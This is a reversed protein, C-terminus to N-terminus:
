HVAIPITRTAGGFRLHIYYVGATLGTCDLSVDGTNSELQMFRVANGIRNGLIDYAAVHVDSANFGIDWSVRASVLGRAPQPYPQSIQLATHTTPETEVTSTGGVPKYRLLHTKNVNFGLDKGILKGISLYGSTASYPTIGHLVRTSDWPIIDSIHTSDWLTAAGNLASTYAFSYQRTLTVLMNGLGFMTNTNYNNINTFPVNLTDFDRRELSYILLRNEGATFVLHKDYLTSPQFQIVEAGYKKDYRQYYENPLPIAIPISDWTKGDDTSRYLSYVPYSLDKVSDRVFWDKYTMGMLYVTNGDSIMGNIRTLPLTVTELFRYDKDLRIVVSYPHAAVAGSSTMYTPTGYLMFVNKTQVIDSPYASYALKMKSRNVSDEAFANFLPISGTTTYTEGFDTTVFINADKEKGAAVIVCGKGTSDYHAFRVSSNVLEKQFRFRQPLITAGANTTKYFTGYASPMYITSADPSRSYSASFRDSLPFYSQLKWSAGNDSTRLICHNKGAGIMTTSDLRIFQRIHERDNFSMTHREPLSDKPNMIIQNGARNVMIYEYRLYTQIISLPVSSPRPIPINWSYDKRRLTVIQSDNIPRFSYINEIGGQGNPGFRSWSIGNDDSIMLYFYEIRFSMNIQDLIAVYLTKNYSQLGDIIGKTYPMLALVDTRITLKSRLNYNVVKRDDEIWHLMGNQTAILTKRPVATDFAVVTTMAPLQTLHTRLIASQTLIYLSDNSHTLTVADTVPTSKWTRADDTSVFLASASLAVYVQGLTDMRLIDHNNGLSVREWSAGKNVSRTIIGNTGYCLVSSGNSVVGNYDSTCYELEFPPTGSLATHRCFLVALILIFYRM